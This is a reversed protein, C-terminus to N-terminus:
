KWGPDAKLDRALDVASRDKALLAGLLQEALAVHEVHRAALLDDANVSGEDAVLLDTGDGLMPAPLARGVIDLRDGLLGLVAAIQEVALRGALVVGFGLKVALRDLDDGLALFGRGGVKLALQADAIVAGRTEDLP